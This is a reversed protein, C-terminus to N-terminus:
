VMIPALPSTGGPGTKLGKEILKMQGPDDLNFEMRMEHPKLLLLGVPQGGVTDPLRALRAAVDQGSEDIISGIRAMTAPPLANKLKILEQRLEDKYRNVFYSEVYGGRRAWFYAGDERGAKLTIQKIGWEKCAAIMNGFFRKGTGHRRNGDDPIRVEKLFLTGHTKSFNGEAALGKATLDWDGQGGGSFSLSLLPNGPLDKTWLDVFHKPPLGVAERWQERRDVWLGAAANFDAASYEQIGSTRGDTAQKM